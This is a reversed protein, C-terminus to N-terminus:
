VNGRPGTGRGDMHREAEENKPFPFVVKGASEVLSGWVYTEERLEKKIQNSVLEDAHKGDQFYPLRPLETSIERAVSNMSESLADLIDAEQETAKKAAKWSSSEVIGFDLLKFRSEMDVGANGFHDDVHNYGGMFFKEKLGFLSRQADPTFILNERAAKEIADDVSMQLQEILVFAFEEIRTKCFWAGFVKPGVGMKGAEEGICIEKLASDHGAAASVSFDAAPSVWGGADFHKLTYTKGTELGSYLGEHSSSDSPDLTVSEVQGFAGEGLSKHSLLGPHCDEVLVAEITERSPPFLFCKTTKEGKEEENKATFLRQEVETPSLGQRTFFEFTKAVRPQMGGSLRFQRLHDGEEAIEEENKPFPYVVKEISAALSGWVYKREKLERIVRGGVLGDKHKGHYFYPINPMQVVLRLAVSEIAGSLSVLVDAEQEAAKMGVAWQSPRVIGFDLLKFRGEMDVGANGFHDDEQSYGGMFFKEKLGMLSRQADPTFILNEEIAKQLVNSITMQLQEMLVFAFEQHKTKCFWAGHVRPGVGMEGAEEGVCIEQLASEHAAAASVAFDALPPTWAGANFYKLAYMNGTELGSYLSEHSSSSDSPDISVSAVKGFAGAGLYNMQIRLGPYCGGFHPAEITEKNPPCSLCTKTKRQGDGDGGEAKFNSLLSEVEKPSLGQRTQTSKRLKEAEKWLRKVARINYEAERVPDENRPFTDFYIHGEYGGKQLWYVLELAMLPHVSAAMLGDEAGLRTYGDNFQLGFLKGKQLCMAASQAPNEGAALCHGVDLTLGFNKRDVDAALLLSAGTSPVIFFRTNEDTPKFELSFRIDPFADCVEQFAEVIQSWKSPFDVQFSYDFGDYASWVIVESAGLERAWEAAERTLQIAERRISEDPNTFAGASMHKPFRLCIAGTELGASELATKVEKVELNGLHQPYNFDVLSLGKVKGQRGIWGLVDNPGDWLDLRASMSNLRSAFRLPFEEDGDGDGSGKGERRRGVGRSINEKEGSGFSVPNTKLTRSKKEKEEFSSNSTPSQSASLVSELELATPAGAVAGVRSVCSAGAAAAVRLCEQMSSEDPVGEGRSCLLALAFASRFCDGAGTSDVARGGPIPLAEQRLVGGGGGALVRPLVLLSGRSGMTVLVMAHGGMRVQLERAAKEIGELSHLDWEGSHGQEGQVLLRELETLNPSLVSVHRLFQASLARNEGGPDLFVPVGARAAAEAVKENVASPIEQQLLVAGAGRVAEDWFETAVEPWHANAGGVVVCAVEGDPELLVLGQGAPVDERRICRSVDVEERKLAEELMQAGQDNGIVGVFRVPAKRLKAAAIAQNCGKGGPLTKTSPRTSVVTEGEKPIRDVEIIVDANMSGVVLLAPAGTETVGLPFKQFPPSLIPATGRPARQKRACRRVTDAIGGQGPCPRVSAAAVLLLAAVLWLHACCLDM